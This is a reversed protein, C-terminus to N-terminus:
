NTRPLTLGWVTGRTNNKPIPRAKASAKAEPLIGVDSFEGRNAKAIAIMQERGRSDIGMGFTNIVTRRSHEATLVLLTKDGFAGDGLVNIVDPNLTLAMGVAKEARTQLCMEVTALWTALKAKNKTTAPVMDAATDPHFLGYATDSYFIVSFYQKADMADVAKRLEHIATEFRGGGMSNSNDVVFVFRRGTSRKGFFTAAMGGADGTGTGVEMGALDGIDPLPGDAIALDGVEAVADSAVVDALALAAPDIAPVDVAPQEFEVTEEPVDLEVETFDELPADESMSSTITMVPPPPEIAPQMVLAMALLVAVHVLLSALFSM